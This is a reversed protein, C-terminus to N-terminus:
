FNQSDHFRPPEVSVALNHPSVWRCAAYAFSSCSISAHDSIIALPGCVSRILKPTAQRPETREFIIGVDVANAASKREVCSPGRTREPSSWPTQNSRHRRGDAPQEDPPTRGRGPLCLLECLGVSAANSEIKICGQILLFECVGM